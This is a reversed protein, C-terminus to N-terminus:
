EKEETAAFFTVFTKGYKREDTVRLGAPAEGEFKRDREYVIVGGKNLLGREVIKEMAPVGYEMRYPPDIFIIDFADRQVNLCQAYDLSYVRYDREDAKVLKLNKKLVELSNKAADNFVVEKAGRSLSELGLAGSGCFLDLVRAGYFRTYLINFLSEKVRDGTPRIDKGDFSTLTRGKFQGGIIRM